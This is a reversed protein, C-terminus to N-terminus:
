AKPQGGAPQRGAPGSGGRGAPQQSKVAEPLEPRPLSVLVDTPDVNFTAAYVFELMSSCYASMRRMGKVEIECVIAATSHGGVDSFPSMEFFAMVNREFRAYVQQRDYRLELPGLENVSINPPMQHVCTSNGKNGAFSFDQIWSHATNSPDERGVAGEPGSMMMYNSSIGTHQGSMIYRRFDDLLSIGDTTQDRPADVKESTTIHKTSNWEDIRRALGEFNDLHMCEDLIGDMPSPLIESTPVPDTHSYVHLDELKVDPHYPTIDYYYLSDQKLRRKRTNRLIPKVTWTFTGMPLIVPIMVEKDHLMERKIVFVVFGCMYTMELASTLFKALHKGLFADLGSALPKFGTSESTREKISVLKPVVSSLMRSICARVPVNSRM